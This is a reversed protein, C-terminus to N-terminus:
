RAGLSVGVNYSTFESKNISAFLSLVTVKLRIGADMSINKSDFSLAIPDVLADENTMVLHGVSVKTIVPYKGILDITSECSSQCLGGFVTLIGLKKSM